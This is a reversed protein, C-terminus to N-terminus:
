FFFSHTASSILSMLSQHHRGDDVFRFENRRKSVLSCPIGNFWNTNTCLQVDNGPLLLWWRSHSNLRSKSRFCYNISFIFLVRQENADASQKRSPGQVCYLGSPVHRYCLVFIAASQRNSRDISAGKLSLALAGQQRGCVTLKTIRVRIANYRKENSYSSEDDDDDDRALYSCCVTYVQM